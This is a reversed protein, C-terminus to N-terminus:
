MRVLWAPTWYSTGIWLLRIPICVSSVYFTTTEQEKIELLSPLLFKDENVKCKKSYKEVNAQVISYYFKSNYFVAIKSKQIQM